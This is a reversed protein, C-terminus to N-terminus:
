NVYTDAVVREDGNAEHVLNGGKRERSEKTSDVEEQPTPCDDSEPTTKSAAKWPVDGKYLSALWAVPHMEMYRFM